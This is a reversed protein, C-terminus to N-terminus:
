YFVSNNIPSCMNKLIGKKRNILNSLSTKQKAQQRKLLPCIQENSFMESKNKTKSYVKETSSEFKNM